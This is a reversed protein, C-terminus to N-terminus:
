TLRCHKRIIDSTQIGEEFFADYVRNRSPNVMVMLGWNPFMSDRLEANQKWRWLVGVPPTYTSESFDAILDVRGDAQQFFQNILPAVESSEALTWNGVYRCLIINQTADYWGANVPM